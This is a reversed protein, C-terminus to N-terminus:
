LGDAAAAAAAAADAAPIPSAMDDTMLGEPPIPPYSKFGEAQATGEAVM